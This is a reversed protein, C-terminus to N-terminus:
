GKLLDKSGEYEVKVMAQAWAQPDMERPAFAVGGLPTWGKSILDRVKIKLTELGEAKVVDYQM